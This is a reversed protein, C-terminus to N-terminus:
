SYRGLERSITDPLRHKRSVFYWGIIFATGERFAPFAFLLTDPILCFWHMEEKGDAVSSVICNETRETESITIRLIFSEVSINLM